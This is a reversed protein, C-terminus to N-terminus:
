QGMEEYAEMISDFIARAAKQQNETELIMELNKDNSLYAVELLVVPMTARRVIHLDQRNYIGNSKTGLADVLNHLCIFAFSRSNFEEGEGQLRNYLVSTGNSKKNESGNCHFSIFLDADVGLALDVRESLQLSVDTTRTCLVKIDTEEELMDKLYLMMQLAIDSEKIEYDNAGTGPDKGGHGADLVILKDYVEKHPVLNVIYYEDEEEIQMTLYNETTFVLESVKCDVEYNLVDFGSVTESPEPMGYFFEGNSVRLVSAPSLYESRHKMYFRLTLNVPDEEVSYACTGEPKKILICNEGIKELLGEMNDADVFQWVEWVETEDAHGGHEVAQILQPTPTAAPLELVQTGEKILQEKAIEEPTKKQEVKNNWAVAICICVLMILFTYRALQKLFDDEKM